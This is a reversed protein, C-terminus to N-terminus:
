NLLAYLEDKRADDVFRAEISNKVLEIAQLQTM